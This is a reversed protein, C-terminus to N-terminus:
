KELSEPLASPYINKVILVPKENYDAELKTRLNADWDFKYERELDVVVFKKLTGTAVVTEDDKVNKQYPVVNPDNPVLVLLDNAGILTEEDLTFANKVQYQM